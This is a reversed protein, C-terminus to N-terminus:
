SLTGPPGQSCASSARERRRDIRPRRASRCLCQRAESCRRRRGPNPSLRAWLPRRDAVGKTAFCESRVAPRNDDRQRWLDLWPLRPQSRLCKDAGAARHRDPDHRLARGAGAIPAIVEDGNRGYALRQRHVHLREDGRVRRLRRPRRDIAPPPHCLPRLSRDSRAGHSPGLRAVRVDAIILAIPLRPM